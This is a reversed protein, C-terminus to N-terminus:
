LSDTVIHVIVHCNPMAEWRSPLPGDTAFRCDFVDKAVSARVLGIQLLATVNCSSEFRVPISSRFSRYTISRFTTLPTEISAAVSICPCPCMNSFSVANAMMHAANSMFCPM